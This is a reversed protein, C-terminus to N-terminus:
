SIAGAIPSDRLLSQAAVAGLACIFDPKVAAIERWLFPRCAEIEMPAPARKAPPSCKVLNTLYVRGRDLNMAEIIRTLLQGAEGMFPEGALDDDPGPRGGVFLIRAHPDGSGFVISKRSKCLPCEKCNKLDVRLDGLSEAMRGWSTITKLHRPCDFGTVGNESLFRLYDSVEGTLEGMANKLPTM